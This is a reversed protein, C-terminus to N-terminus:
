NEEARPSFTRLSLSITAARELLLPQRGVLSRETKHASPMTPSPKGTRKVLGLDILVKRRKRALMKKTKAWAQRVRWAPRSRAQRLDRERDAIVGNLHAITQFHGQVEVRLADNLATQQELRTNADSLLRDALIRNTKEAQLAQEAAMLQSQLSPLGAVASQIETLHRLVDNWRDEKHDFYDRKTIAIKPKKEM